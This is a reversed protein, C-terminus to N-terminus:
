GGRLWSSVCVWLVDEREGSSREKEVTTWLTKRSACVWWARERERGIRDDVSGRSDDIWAKRQLPRKFLCCLSGWKRRKQQPIDTWESVGEDTQFFAKDSKKYGSSSEFNLFIGFRCCQLCIGFDWFKTCRARRILPRLNSDRITSMQRGFVNLRFHWFSFFFGFEKRMLTCNFTLYFISHVKQSEFQPDRTNFTVMCCVKNYRPM